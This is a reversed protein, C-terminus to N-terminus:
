KKGTVKERKKGSLLKVYDFCSLGKERAEKAMIKGAIHVQQLAPYEPFEKEVDRKIRTMEKSAIKSM